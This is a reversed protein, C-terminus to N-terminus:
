TYNKYSLVLGTHEFCVSSFSNDFSASTWPLPPLNPPPPSAFVPVPVLSAIQALLHQILPVYLAPWEHVGTLVVRRIAM